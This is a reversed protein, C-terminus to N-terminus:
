GGKITRCKHCYGRIDMHHDVPKFRYRRCIVDQLKEIQEDKFEYTKGCKICVMHDHHTHGAIHEYKVFDGQQHPAEKIAKNEVLLPLTRYITARSVRIGKHRLRGFLDEVDFHTHISMVEKLIAQREATFKKGSRRLSKRIRYEIADM